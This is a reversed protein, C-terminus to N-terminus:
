RGIHPVNTDQYREGPKNFMVLDHIIIDPIWLYQFYKSASSLETGQRVKINEPSINIEGRCVATGSILSTELVISSCLIKSYDM